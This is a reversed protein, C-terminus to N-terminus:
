LIEQLIPDKILTCLKKKDKMIKSTMFNVYESVLIAIEVNLKKKTRAHHVTRIGNSKVERIRQTEYSLTFSKRKCITQCDRDNLKYTSM